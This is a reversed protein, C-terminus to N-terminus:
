HGGCGYRVNCSYLCDDQAGNDKIRQCRNVCQRYGPDRQIDCVVKIIRTGENHMVRPSYSQLVQAQVNPCCALTILISTLIISTFSNYEVRQCFRSM